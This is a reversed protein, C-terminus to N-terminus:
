NNNKIKTLYYFLSKLSFQFVTGIKLYLDRKCYMRKVFTIVYYIFELRKIKDYVSNIFCFVIVRFYLCFFFFCSFLAVYKSVFYIILSNFFYQSFFSINNGLEINILYSVLSPSMSWSRRSFLFFRPSELKFIMIM